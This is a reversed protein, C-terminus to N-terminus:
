MSVQNVAMKINTNVMLHYPKSKDFDIFNEGELDVENVTENVDLPKIGFLVKMLSVVLTRSTTTSYSRRNESNM